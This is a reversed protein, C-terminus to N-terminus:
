LELLLLTLDDNKLKSSRRANDAWLKFSKSPRPDEPFGLLINWPREDREHEYLFWCAIADTALLFVDGVKWEASHTKVYEWLQSSRALNTSLLPPTNGFESADSIPFSCILNENRIQFLCTDGVAIASWSGSEHSSNPSSNLELGLITAFAGQRAKEEAFWPLSIENIIREWRKSLIKTRDQLTEITTFPKKVFARTLMKAWESAFSSETAGDAVALYFSQQDRTGKIKPAFADEYDAM